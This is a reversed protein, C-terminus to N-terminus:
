QRGTILSSFTIRSLTLSISAVDSRRFAAPLAGSANFEFRSFDALRLRKKESTARPAATAIALQLRPSM